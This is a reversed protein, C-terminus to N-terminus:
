NTAAQAIGSLSHEAELEAVYTNKVEQDLALMDQEQIHQPKVMWAFYNTPETTIPLNSALVYGEAAKELMACFFIYAIDGRVIEMCQTTKQYVNRYDEQRQKLEKENFRRPVGQITTKITM